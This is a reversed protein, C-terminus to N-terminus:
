VSCKCVFFRPTSVELNNVATVKPSSFKPFVSINKLNLNLNEAARVAQGQSLSRERGCSFRPWLKGLRHNTPSQRRRPTLLPATPQGLGSWGGWRGAGGARGAWLILAPPARGMQRPFTRGAQARVAGAPTTGHGGQVSNLVRLRELPMELSHPWPGCGLGWFGGHVRGQGLTGTM